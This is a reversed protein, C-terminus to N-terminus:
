ARCPTTTACRRRRKRRRAARSTSRRMSRPAPSASRPQRLAWASCWTPPSSTCRGTRAARRGARRSASRIKRPHLPQRGFLFRHRHRAPRDRGLRRVDHRQDGSVPHHPDGALRGAQAAAHRRGRRRPCPRRALEGAAFRLCFGLARQGQLRGSGGASRSQDRGLGPHRARRQLNRQRRRSRSLGRDHRLRQVPRPVVRDLRRGQRDGGADAHLSGASGRHRWFEEAAARPLARERDAGPDGGADAAADARDRRSRARDPAGARACARRPRPRSAQEHTGRMRKNQKEQQGRHHGIRRRRDLCRIRSM